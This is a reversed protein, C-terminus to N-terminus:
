SAKKEHTTIVGNVTAIQQVTLTEDTVESLRAEAKIAAWEKGLSAVRSKATSLMKQVALSQRAEPVEGPGARTSASRKGTRMPSDLDEEPESDLALETSVGFDRAARAKAATNGTIMVRGDQRMVWTGFDTTPCWVPASEAEELSLESICVSRRKKLRQQPMGNRDALMGLSFGELTALIQWAEMVGPKRKKGFHGAKDGDAMMMAILMAQRAEHSYQTVMAPLDTTDYIGAANLIRRTEETSFTFIQQPLCEYTKGSPFTRAPQERTTERANVGVLERIVQVNGQKSQYICSRLYKGDRRIAGDTVLWGLIAADRPTLPHSGDPGPASMILSHSTKLEFAKALFRTGGQNRVAWSHNPTCLVDFWKGHLRALPAEGYCTVKRLSTWVCQDQTPDYALVEEGIVLEDHRKFGRKTLIESTLPVCEIKDLSSLQGQKYASARHESEAYTKGDFIWAKVIVLNREEDMHVIESELTIHPYRLRLEYLRWNAPLYDKMTGDKARIQMLHEHSNYNNTAATTM